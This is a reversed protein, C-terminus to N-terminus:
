KDQGCQLVCVAPLMPLQCLSVKAQVSRLSKVSTLLLPLMRARRLRAICDASTPLETTLM